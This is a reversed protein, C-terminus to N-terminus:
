DLWVSGRKLVNIDIKSLNLAARDGFKVNTVEGGHTQVGRVTATIKEPLIEISDGKSINGSKITGTVISGYGKKNFVEEYNSQIYKNVFKLRQSTKINDVFFAPSEYIM